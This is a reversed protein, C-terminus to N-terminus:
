KRFLREKKFCQQYNNIQNISIKLMDENSNYAKYWEVTKKVAERFSWLPTWGLKMKAKSCDLRLYHAEHPQENKDKLWEGGGNWDQIISEVLYKVSVEANQHPGFNWAGSYVSGCVYSMRALILYGRLLDLVHQWPRISEPYRIRIANNKMLARVCDPVIRDEAWDGGGIVNGARTSVLITGHENYKDESFYSKRYAQTVLEACGKSSSYPDYGGMPENERYGWLWEKNDYCKDSTVIVAVKVGGVTRISELLNVTGMVNSAYTEVPEKYSRRVLSQAALHFVIEPNSKGIHYKLNDLDRIDGDISKILSRLNCLEFLSPDTPSKLSYGVIEAGLHNLWTSLWAGKFGTHGTVFVRKGNWFSM